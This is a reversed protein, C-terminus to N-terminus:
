KVVPLARWLEDLKNLDLGPRLLYGDRGRKRIAGIERLWGLALYSQYSPYDEGAASKLPMVDSAEFVRGEGKRKRIAEVLGEIIERPARHEYPKREKKSWAIKVLREDDRMYRPYARKSSPPAIWVARHGNAASQQSGAVDAQIEHSQSTMTVLASGTSREGTVEQILRALAEASAAVEAVERYAQAALAAEIIGRLAVEAGRLTEIARGSYSM